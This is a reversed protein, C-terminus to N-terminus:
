VYLSGRIPSPNGLEALGKKKRRRPPTNYRSRECLEGEEQVKLSEAGPTAVGADVDDESAGNVTCLNLM